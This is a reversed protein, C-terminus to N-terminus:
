SPQRKRLQVGNLRPKGNLRIRPLTPEPTEARATLIRVQRKTVVRGRDVEKVVARVQKRSLVKGPMLPSGDVRRRSSAAPTVAPMTAPTGPLGEGGMEGGPGGMEGGEMGPLATDMPGGGGGTSMATEEPATGPSPEGQMQSRHDLNMGRIIRDTIDTQDIVGQGLNQYIAEVLRNFVPDRVTFLDEVLANSNEEPDINHIDLLYRLALSGKQHLQFLQEYVETNDRISLRNFRITSHNYVKNVQIKRKRLAGDYEQIVDDGAELEDPETKIWTDIEEYFYHGKAEAVPRFICSEGYNRMLERFTLYQTNMLELTIRQGGFTAAGTLMDKTSCLGTAIDERLLNYDAEVNLLRQQAGIIEWHVQYNTVIPYDVNDLIALDVQTRLDDLETQSLAEGWILHKPQMNRGTIQLEANKLNELRLLAELCREVIGMGYAENPPRNRSLHYVFSGKSPDTNLPHGEGYDLLTKLGDPLDEDVEELLEQIDPDGAVMYLDRDTMRRISATDVLPRAFIILEKRRLFPHLISHCYECPLIYVEEWEKIEDNWEHWIYVDGVLWYERAIELFFELLGLREIMNEYIRNIQRNQRSSPGKPPGISLRSLPLESHLEIARGVFPDTRSFYRYLALRDARSLTYQFVSLPSGTALVSPLAAGSPVGGMGMSMIGSSGASATRGSAVARAAAIGSATVTRAIAMASGLPTESITGMVVRNTRQDPM